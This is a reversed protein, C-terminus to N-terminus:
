RLQSGIDTSDNTQTVLIDEVMLLRHQVVDKFQALLDEPLPNGKTSKISTPNVPKGNIRTEYHVHPGTSQGTSGVRAIVQGQKVRSGKGVLLRSCHGYYTKYGNSHRLIVLKGYGGRWGSFEVTGSATAFIPTGHPAGYDIGTHPKYRKSIPHFRRISYSSTLKGFKVPIRLFMKRLPVGNQDYYGDQRGDDFYFASFTETSSIYQAALIQGYKVFQGDLSHKEFLVRISDGKRPYLYFDIDWSFIDAVETVLQYGEDQDIVANYFSSYITFTRAVIEKQLPVKEHHARFAGDDTRVAVYQDTLGSTYTLKELRGQPSLCVQYEDEPQARRFDFIGKFSSTVSLADSPAVGCTVLERYIPKRGIKGKIVTVSMTSEPAAPTDAQTNVRAAPPAQTPVGVAFAPGTSAAIQITLYLLLITQLTSLKHLRTMFKILPRPELKNM